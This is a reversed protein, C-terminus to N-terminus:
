CKHRERIKRWGKCDTCSCKELNTMGDAEIWIKIDDFVEQKAKKIADDIAFKVCFPIGKPFARELNEYALNREKNM